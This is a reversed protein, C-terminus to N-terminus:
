DDVHIELLYEDAAPEDDSDWPRRQAFRVCTVGPKLARVPFVEGASAGVAADPDSELGADQPVAAVSEDDARGKWRYGSTGRGSLRVPHEDGVRLKVVDRRAESSM